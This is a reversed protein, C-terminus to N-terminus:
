KQIMKGLCLPLAQLCQRLKTLNRDMEKLTKFFHLFYSVLQLHSEFDHRLNRYAIEHLLALTSTKM